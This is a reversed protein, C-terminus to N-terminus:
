EYISDEEKEEEVKDRAAVIGLGRFIDRLADWKLDSDFVIYNHICEVITGYIKIKEKAEEIHKSEIGNLTYRMRM